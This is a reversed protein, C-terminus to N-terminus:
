TVGDSPAGSCESYDGEKIENGGREEERDAGDRQEKIQRLVRVWSLEFTTDAM